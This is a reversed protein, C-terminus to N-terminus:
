GSGLERLRAEAIEWDEATDIDVSDERPMVYGGHRSLDYLSRATVLYSSKVIYIAGNERYLPPLDASPLTLHDPDRPTALHDSGISFMWEPRESVACMSGLTNFGGLDLQRCAYLIQEPRLFPSTPQMLAVFEPEFGDPPPNSRVWNFAHLLVDISTASDTALEAPRRFPVWAGAAVAAAAIEDDDTSVLVRQFCGSELAAGIVWAILPKGGLPRVNKRPLRKSGGRAPIVALRNATMRLIHEDIASFASYRKGM